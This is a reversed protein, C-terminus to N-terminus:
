GPGRGAGDGPRPRAALARSLHDVCRESARGDGYPSALGALERHAKELQGLWRRAARGIAAPDPVLVAFTGMVEPRETSRRVVVVPRKVVSAEEQVGGSDSVLLASEAALGLFTRYGIPEALRVGGGAGAGGA